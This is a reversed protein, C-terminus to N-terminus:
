NILTCKAHGLSRNGSESREEAPASGDRDIDRPGFYDGGCV